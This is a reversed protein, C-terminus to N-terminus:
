LRIGYITQPIMFNGIGGNTILLNSDSVSWQNIKRSHVATRYIPLFHTQCRRAPGILICEHQIVLLGFGEPIWVSVAQPAYLADIEVAPQWLQRGFIGAPLFPLLLM